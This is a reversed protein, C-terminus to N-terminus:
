LDTRSEARARGVLRNSWWAAIGVLALGSVLCVRGWTSGLLVGVADVGLLSAVVPGALPLGAVIRAAALPGACAASRAADAARVERAAEAVARLVDAAPLGHDRALRLAAALGAAAGRDVPDPSSVVVPGGGGTAHSWAASLPLGAAVAVAVRDAIEGVTVATVPGDRLPRAGTVVPRRHLRRRPPPPSQV